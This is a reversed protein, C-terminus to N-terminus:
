ATQTPSVTWMESIYIPSGTVLQVHGARGDGHELVDLVAGSLPGDPSTVERGWTERM